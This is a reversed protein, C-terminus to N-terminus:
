DKREISDSTPMEHRAQDWEDVAANCCVPAGDDGEEWDSGCFSCVKVDSWLGVVTNLGDCHRQIDKVTGGLRDMWSRHAKAPDSSLPWPEEPIVEVRYNRHITVKM